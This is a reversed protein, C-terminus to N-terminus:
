EKRPNFIKPQGTAYFDVPEGLDDVVYINFFMIDEDDNAKNSIQSLKWALRWAVVDSDLLEEDTGPVYDTIIDVDVLKQFHVRFGEPKRIWQEDIIKLAEKVEM